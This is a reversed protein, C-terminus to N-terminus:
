DECDWEKRKKAMRARHREHQVYEVLGVVGFFVCLGVNMGIWWELLRM